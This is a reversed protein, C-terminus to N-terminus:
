ESQHDNRKKEEDRQVVPGPTAHAKLFQNVATQPGPSSIVGRDKPNAFGKVAELEPVEQAAWVLWIKETGQQEDYKSWTQDPIQIQQNQTLLASGHDALLREMGADLDSLKQDIEDIHPRLEPPLPKTLPGKQVQPSIALDRVHNFYNADWPM